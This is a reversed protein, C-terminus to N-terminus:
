RKVMVLGPGEQGSWTTDMADGTTGQRIETNGGRGSVRDADRGAWCVWEHPAAKLLSHILFTLSTSKESVVLERPASFEPMLWLLAATNKLMRPDCTTSTLLFAAISLRKYAAPLCATLKIWHQMHHSQQSAPTHLPCSLCGLKWPAPNSLLALVWNGNENYRSNCKEYTM